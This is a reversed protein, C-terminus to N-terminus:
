IPLSFFLLSLTNHQGHGECCIHSWFLAQDHVWCVLCHHLFPQGFKLVLSKKPWHPESYCKHVLLYKWKSCSKGKRYLALTFIPIFNLWQRPKLIGEKKSIKKQEILNLIYPRTFTWILSQTNWVKVRDMLKGKENKLTCGVINKLGAHKFSGLVSNRIFKVM